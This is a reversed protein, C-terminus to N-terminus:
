SYSKYFLRHIACPCITFLCVFGLFVFVGKEYCGYQCSIASSSLHLKYFTNINQINLKATLIQLLKQVLGFIYEIKKGEKDMALPTLCM